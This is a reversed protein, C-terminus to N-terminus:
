MTCVEDQRLVQTERWDESLGGPLRCKCPTSSPRSRDLARRIDTFGIKPLENVIREITVGAKEAAKTTFGLVRAQVKVNRSLHSAAADSAKYGAAVYAARSTLGQALGQAFLEEIRPRSKTM